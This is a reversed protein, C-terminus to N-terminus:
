TMEHPWRRAARAKRKEKLRYSDRINIVTSRHLLPELAASAMIPDGAFVEGWDAFAKNSTLILPQEREYRLQVRSLPEDDARPKQCDDRRRPAGPEAAM